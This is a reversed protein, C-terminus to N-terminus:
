DNKCLKAKVILAIVLIGYDDGDTNRKCSYVINSMHKLVAQDNCNLKSKCLTLLKM